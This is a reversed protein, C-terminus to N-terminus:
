SASVLGTVGVLLTLYGLILVVQRRRFAAFWRTRQAQWDAPFDSTSWRDMAQNIPLNGRVTLVLDLVLCLIAVSAAAALSRHGSGWSLTLLWIAAALTSLYIAPLRRNMVPNIRQRLEIFAPASLAQQARSLFLLYALPQSVVISYGALTLVTAVGLM